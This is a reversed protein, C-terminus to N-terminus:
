IKRQQKRFHRSVHKLEMDCLQMLPCRIINGINNSYYVRSIVYGYKIPLTLLSEICNACPMSMGFKCDTSTRIVLINVSIRKGNNKPLACIAAVEAHITFNNDYSNIGYSIVKLVVILFVLSITFIVVNVGEQSLVM